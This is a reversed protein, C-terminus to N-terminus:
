RHEIVVGEVDDGGGGVRASIAGQSSHAQVGSSNQVTKIFGSAVPVWRNGHGKKYCVAM